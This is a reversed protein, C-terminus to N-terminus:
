LESRARPLVVVADEYSLRGKRTTKLAYDVVRDHGSSAPEVHIRQVSTGPRIYLSENDRFHDVLSEKLRSTPPLLVLAHLHLGDNCRSTPATVRDRKYVPRDLFGVLVPLEDVPATKPKRHVRTVLTSYVRQVQDKMQAMVAAPSGPFQDFLFTLLYCSWGDRVRDSVIQSYGTLWDTEPWSTRRHWASNDSPCLPAATGAQDGSQHVPEGSTFAPPHVDSIEITPTTQAITSWIRDPTSRM